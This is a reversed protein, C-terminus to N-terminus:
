HKNHELGGHESLQLKKKVNKKLVKSGTGM